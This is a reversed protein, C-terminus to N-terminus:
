EKVIKQSVSQGNVEGTVVYIGKPLSSVNLSSNKDVSASKVLSGSVNYIKVNAKEGFNIENTVITNKVFNGRFVKIDGVSLFSSNLPNPTGTTFDTSNNDTDVFVGSVTKRIAATTVTLATGTPSTESCNTTGYGVFDIITGATPCQSTTGFSTTATTLVIKVNSGSLALATAQPVDYDPTPLAVGAGSTGKNLGILFYKGAAIKTGAPFANVTWPNTSGPGNASNYQLAYTSMDIEASTPNYLVVYDQNYTAGTNGGAGYVQAIVVHTVQANATVALAVFSLLTFIKKMVNKKYLKM